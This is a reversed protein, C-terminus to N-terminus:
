ASEDYRVRHCLAPIEGSVLKPLVDPLDEFASEGTVLADLAPDALLDLALALRDAYTRNPRAPSVTGVQSSRIVLRRSHFAEGLPVSVQRDGYWSLELVTGEVTLLELSRALGQETASAHVVLDCEGLADEPSAFGVGLAKAIGARGPDADVLQVRVGPFRALLAAVSSGVMGGGVVAIRDGILPAADWLANVATEVTGALVAREAPVADPVPTVASAPVVFRTQHPYLCFVTRGTLAEPGEEVVGVNLYGYKVPGPFDGEQFPARMASHQSVPVGGRFVLTETGRSVGSFLTRVLVEGEGPDPLAVDRIEGRGPSDIWFARGTHKM